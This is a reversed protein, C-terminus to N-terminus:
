PGRRNSVSRKARVREVAKRGEPTLGTVVASLQHMVGPAAPSPQPIHATILGAALYARVANISEEHNVLLPFDADHMTELMTYPM